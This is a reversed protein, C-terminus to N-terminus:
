IYAGVQIGSAFPDPKRPQSPGSGLCHSEEVFLQISSTEMLVYHFAAQLFTTNSFEPRPVADAGFVTQIDGGLGLEATM